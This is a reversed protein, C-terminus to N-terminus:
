EFRPKKPVYGEKRYESNGSLAAARNTAVLNIWAKYRREAEIKAKEFLEYVGIEIEINQSAAVKLLLADEKSPIYLIHSNVRYCGKEPEFIIDFFTTDKISASASIVEDEKDNPYQKAVVIWTLGNFYCKKLQFPKPKITYTVLKPKVEEFSPQKNIEEPSEGEKFEEENFDDNFEKNVM